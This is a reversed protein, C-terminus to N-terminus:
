NVNNCVGNKWQDPELDVSTTGVEWWSPVNSGRNNALIHDLLETFFRYEFLELESGSHFTFACYFDRFMCLKDTSGCNKDSEIYAHLWLLGNENEEDLLKDIFNDGSDNTGLGKNLNAITQANTGDGGVINELLSFTTDFRKMIEAAGSSEALWSLIIKRENNNWSLDGEAPPDTPLSSSFRAIVDDLGIGLLISLSRLNEETELGRLRPLSPDKLVNFVNKIKGIAVTTYQYCASRATQTTFITRCSERCVTNGICGGRRLVPHLNTTRYDSPFGEATDAYEPFFTDPKMVVRYLFDECEEQTVPETVRIEVCEDAILSYVENIYCETFKDEDVFEDFCMQRKAIADDKLDRAELQSLLRLGDASCGPLLLYYFFLFGITLFPIYIGKGTKGNVYQM